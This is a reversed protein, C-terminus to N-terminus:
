ASNCRLQDFSICRDRCLLALDEGSSCVVLSSYVDMYHLTFSFHSSVICSQSPELQGTDRWSWTTDRLDFNCEIDIGVTDYVYM